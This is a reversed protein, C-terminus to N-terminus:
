FVANKMTMVMFVEFSLYYYHRAIYTKALISLIVNSTISGKVTMKTWDRNVPIPKANAEWPFPLPYASVARNQSGCLACPGLVLLLGLKPRHTRDICTWCHSRCLLSHKSTCGFDSSVIYHNISQCIYVRQSIRHFLVWYINGRQDAEPYILVLSLALREEFLADWLLFFQLHTFVFEM